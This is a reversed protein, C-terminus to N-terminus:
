SFTCSVICFSILFEVEDTAKLKRMIEVMREASFCNTTDIYLVNARHKLCSLASVHLALQTKGCASRGYVEAVECTYLGGGLLKDLRFHFLSHIYLLTMLQWALRLLIHQVSWCIYLRSKQYEM